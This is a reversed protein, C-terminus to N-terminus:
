RGEELGPRLSFALKGALFVQEVQIRKELFRFLVLDAREGPELVGRIGKFFRAPNATAMQIAATLSIKAFSACNSVAEDM